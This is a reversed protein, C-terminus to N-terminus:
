VAQCNPCFASARGKIAINQIITGCAHCPQGMRGYVLLRQAFYGTKTNSQGTSFDRLTTGGQTIANQLTTKIHRVLRSITSFDLTNAPTSPHIGSLFLSEAAYINGVGVVVRQDMIISKIPAKSKQTIDFLCDACFDDDLPEVGLHDLWRSQDKGDIIFGFRRPDHYHLQCDKFHWVVHDHKAIAAGIPKQQLSGSMGLHVLYGGTDFELGLFKARRWVGILTGAKIDAIPERLNPRHKDVQHAKKGILPFLSTKTTEVEPLEPM